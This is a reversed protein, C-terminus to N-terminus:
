ESFLHPCSRGSEKTRDLRVSMNSSELPTLDPGRIQASGGGETSAVRVPHTSRWGPPRGSPLTARTMQRMGDAKPEGGPRTTHATEVLRRNHVPWRRPEGHSQDHEPQGRGGEEQTRPLSLLSPHCQSPGGEADGDETKGSPGVLAPGSRSYCWGVDGPFASRAPQRIRRSIM